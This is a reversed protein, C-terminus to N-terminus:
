KLTQSADIEGSIWKQEVTFLVISHAANKQTNTPSCRCRRRRSHCM